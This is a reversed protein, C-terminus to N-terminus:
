HWDWRADGGSHLFCVLVGVKVLTPEERTGQEDRESGTKIREKGGGMRRGRGRGLGKGRRKRKEKKKRNGKETRKGEM